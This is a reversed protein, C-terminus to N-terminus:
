SETVPLRLFHRIASRDSRTENFMPDGHLCLSRSPTSGRNGVKKEPPVGGSGFIVTFGRQPVWSARPVGSIEVGNHLPCHFIEQFSQGQHEPDGTRRFTSNAHRSCNSHPGSLIGTRIRNKASGQSPFIQSHFGPTERFNNSHFGM